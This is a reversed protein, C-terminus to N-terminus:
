NWRGLPRSVSFTLLLLASSSKSQPFLPQDIGGCPLRGQEIFPWFRPHGGLDFQELRKNGSQTLGLIDISRAALPLPLSVTDHDLGDLVVGQRMNAIMEM